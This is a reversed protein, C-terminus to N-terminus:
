DIGQGIEQLKKEIYRGHLSPIFYGHERIFDTIVKKRRNELIEESTGMPKDLGEPMRVYGKGAIEKTGISYLYNQFETLDILRRPEM